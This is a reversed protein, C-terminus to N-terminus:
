RAHLWGAAQWEALWGRVRRSAGRMNRAELSREDALRRLLAADRGRVEVAEGNIFVHRADYLMRTRRDLTVAGTRRRADAREFWVHAKPESLVEGLAREVAARRRVLRRVGDAAFSQLAGPIAAPKTPASCGADGYLVSDANTEGLRQV